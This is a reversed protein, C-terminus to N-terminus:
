AEGSVWAEGSQDLNNGYQLWGGLDGKHVEAFSQLARIRYLTVGRVVKSETTLEFKKQM